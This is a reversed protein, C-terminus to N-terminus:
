CVMSGMAQCSIAPLWPGGGVVNDHANGFFSIGMNTNPMALTGTDNTGIFNNQITNGASASGHIQIGDISNASLVNPAGDGGGVINNAANNINLGVGNPSVFFQLGGLYNGFINNFQANSGTIMVGDYSGGVNVNQVGNSGGTIKVGAACNLITLSGVSNINSSLTFCDFSKSMGVVEVVAGGGNVTDGSTSLPPLSSGLAIQTPFGLSGAFVGPDFAITDDTNAGVPAACGSIGFHSGTIQGCEFASLAEPPIVGTVLDMAERLTMAPDGTTEDDAVDNVTITGGVPFGAHVPEADRLIVLSTVALLALACLALRRAPIWCVTAPLSAVVLPETNGLWRCGSGPGM